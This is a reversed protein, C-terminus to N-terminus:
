GKNAGSAQLVTVVSSSAQIVAVVAGSAQLVTVFALRYFLLLLM